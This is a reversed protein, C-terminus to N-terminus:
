LARKIDVGVTECGESGDGREDSLGALEVFEVGEDDGAPLGGGEELVELAGAEVVGEVGENVAFGDEAGAGAADEEGFVHGVRM